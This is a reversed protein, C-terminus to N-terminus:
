MEIRLEFRDFNVEELFQENSFFTRRYAGFEKSNKKLWIPVPIDLEGCIGIFCDELLDHFSVNEDKKEAM